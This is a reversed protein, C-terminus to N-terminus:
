ATGGPLPRWGIVRGIIEEGHETYWLGNSMSLSGTVARIGGMSEYLIALLDSCHGDGVPEPPEDPSRWPWVSGDLSRAEDDILGADIMARDLRRVPGYMMADTAGREQYVAAIELAAAIIPDTDTM